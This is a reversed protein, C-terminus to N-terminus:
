EGILDKILNNIDNNISEIEKDHMEKHIKNIKEENPNIINDNIRYRVVALDDNTFVSYQNAISSDITDTPKHIILYPDFVNKMFGLNKYMSKRNETNDNIAEILYNKAINENSLYITVPISPLKLIKAIFMIMSTEDDISSLVEGNLRMFLPNKIGNTAIYNLMESFEAGDMSGFKHEKTDIDYTYTSPLFQQHAYFDYPINVSIMHVPDQFCSILVDHEYKSENFKSYKIVEPIKFDFEPLKQDYDDGHRLLLQGVVKDRLIPHRKEINYLNYADYVNMVVDNNNM